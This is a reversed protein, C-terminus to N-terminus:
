PGRTVVQQRRRRRRGAVQERSRPVGEACSGTAAAAEAVDLRRRGGGAHAGVCLRCPYESIGLMLSIARDRRGQLAVHWTACRSPASATLCPKCNPRPTHLSCTARPSMAQPKHGFCSSLMGVRMIVSRPAGAAPSALFLVGMAIDWKRGMRGLPIERAAAAEKAADSEGPM